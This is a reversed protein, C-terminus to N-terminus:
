FGRALWLGFNSVKVFYSVYLMNSFTTMFGFSIIFTIIMYGFVDIFDCHIYKYGNSYVDYFGYQSVILGDFCAGLMWEKVEIISVINLIVLRNKGPSTLGVVMSVLCFM